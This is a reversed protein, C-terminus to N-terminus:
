PSASSRPPRGRSTSASSSTWSTTASTSRSRAAKARHHLDVEAGDRRVARIEYGLGQRYWTVIRTCEGADTPALRESVLTNLLTSKGAKVEGAIAVRLPEELRSRIAAVQVALPTGPAAGEADDCVAALRDAASAAETM